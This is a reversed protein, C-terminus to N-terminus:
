KEDNDITRLLCKDVSLYIITSYFQPFVRNRMFQLIATKGIEGMGSLCLKGTQKLLQLIDDMEQERGILHIPFTNTNTIEAKELTHEGSLVIHIQNM